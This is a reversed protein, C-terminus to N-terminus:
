KKIKEVRIEVIKQNKSCIPAFSSRRFDGILLIEGNQHRLIGVKDRTLGHIKQNTLEAKISSHSGGFKEFTEGEIRSTILLPCSLKDMAFYFRGATYLVKDTIQASYSYNGFQTNNKEQWNWTVTEPLQTEAATIQWFDDTRVYFHESDLEIKHEFRNNTTRLVNEFRNIFNKDPIFEYQFKKSFYMRLVRVRLANPLNLWFKNEVKEQMRIKEYEKAACGEIFLADEECVKASQVIGKVAYPFVDTLEHLFKDRLYNRGISRDFNSKDICYKEFKEAKLFGEIDQRSFDLMIRRVPMGDLESFERLGSLGSVNAGRFLRLLVNEALDNSHHALHIEYNQLGSTIERWKDLRLRRAACEMTENKYMNEPVNLSFQLFNVDYQQATMRCFEADQLSEQGRLGHEFHVATLEFHLKHRWYNLLLFLACSDAGGSFGLLINKGKCPQLKKEFDFYNM